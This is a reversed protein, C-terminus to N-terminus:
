EWITPSDYVHITIEKIYENNRLECREEKWLEYEDSIVNNIEFQCEDIKILLPESRDHDIYVTNSEVLWKDQIHDYIYPFVSWAFIDSIIGVFVVSDGSVIKVYDYYFYQKFSIKVVSTRLDAHIIDENHFIINCRYNYYKNGVRNTGSLIFMLFVLWAVFAYTKTM